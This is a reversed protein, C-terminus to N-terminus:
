GADRFINFRTKGNETMFCILQFINPTPGSKYKNQRRRRNMETVFTREIDDSREVRIMISDFFSISRGSLRYWGRFYCLVNVYNKKRM